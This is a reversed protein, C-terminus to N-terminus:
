ADSQAVYCLRFGVKAGKYKMSLHIPCLDREISEGMLAQGTAACATPSHGNKCDGLWEAFGTVSLFELGYRNTTWKLNPGYKLVGGPKYRHASNGGRVDDGGHVAWDILDYAEDPPIPDSRKVSVSCTNRRIDSLNLTPQPAIQRWDDVTLLRIPFKTKLEYDTCFAMADLWTVSVPLKGEDLFNVPSLHEEIQFNGRKAQELRDTKWNNREYFEWFEDITILKSVMLCHNSMRHPVFDLAKEGTIPRPKAFGETAVLERETLATTGIHITNKM